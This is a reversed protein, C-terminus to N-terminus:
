AVRKTLTQALQHLFTVGERTWRHAQSDLARTADAVYQQAQAQAYSRAGCSELIQKCRRFDAETLTAHNLCRRLFIADEEDAHQLAYVTLVTRKGERIDDMVSKGSMAENGFIGLLDDTIQFAKGAPIAFGEIAAITQDDAGALMMGVQLPNLVTYVATKWELVQEIQQESVTPSLENMIDLTQGHATSIIHANLLYIIRQRMRSSVPLTNLVNQASHSGAWAANLALSLGAHGADGQLQHKKHYSALMEHASPMGRRKASRDQIDDVILIYAHFMEVALAARIIMQRDSGGAMEYGAMVLAGRIRKGGRSLIDWFVDYVMAPAEGYMEKAMRTAESREQVVATDIAKKYAALQDTFTAAAPNNM